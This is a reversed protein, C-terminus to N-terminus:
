LQKEFWHHAYPEANFPDVERYGSSRYLALAETLAGNTELHVRTAGQDRALEELAELIRRGIGLGRAEPDVWMRKIYPVDGSLLLGGCGVSVGDLRALVFRGHPPNMDQASTRISRAPDFGTPFREALERYYRTLCRHADASGADAIEVRVAAARLLREVTQMAEVLRRGRKHDLAALQAEAAEDSLRDILAYERTGAATLRAVRVRGDQESRGVRILGEKELRGLLRSLYGSDLDLRGRLARVEAGAPGIEYLLRTAGYSRPRGLFAEELAGIRRTVARNFSRVKRLADRDM